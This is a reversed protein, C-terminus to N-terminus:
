GWNYGDEDQIATILAQQEESDPPFSNLKEIDSLYMVHSVLFCFHILHSELPFGLFAILLRMMFDLVSM